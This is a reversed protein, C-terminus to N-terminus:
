ASIPQLRQQIDMPPSVLRWGRRVVCLYLNVGADTDGLMQQFHSRQGMAMVVVMMRRAHRRLLASLFKASIFDSGASAFKADAPKKNQQFM